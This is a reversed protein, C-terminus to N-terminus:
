TWRMLCVRYCYVNNNNASTCYDQGTFVMSDINEKTSFSYGDFQGDDLNHRYVTSGSRGYYIKNGVVALGGYLTSISGGTLEVKRDLQGTMKDLVHVTSRAHQLCYAYTADTSIGGVTYRPDPYYTWVHGNSPFEGRKMCYDNSWNATYYYRSDPEGWIQMIRSTGADFIAIATGDRSYRHVSSDNWNPYWFENLSPFFGGGHSRTNMTMHNLVPANDDVHVNVEYGICEGDLCHDNKTDDNGDDCATNNPKSPYTCQGFICTPEEQCQNPLACSVLNCGRDGSAQHYIRYGIIDGNAGFQTNLLEDWSLDFTTNSTNDIALGSPAVTPYHERTTITTPFSARGLDGALGIAYIVISYETGPNLETMGVSFEQDLSHSLPDYEILYTQTVNPAYDRGAGGTPTAVFEFGQVPTNITWVGGPATWTLVVETATPPYVDDQVPLLASSVSRPQGSPQNSPPDVSVEAYPGRGEANMVAVGIAYGAYPHVLEDPLTYSGTTSGVNVDFSEATRNGYLWQTPSIGFPTVNIVYGAIAGNVSGPEPPQWYVIFGGNTENRSATVNEPPATPVQHSHSLLFPSLSTSM